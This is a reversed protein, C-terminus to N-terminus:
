GHRRRARILDSCFGALYDRAEALPESPGTSGFDDGSEAALRELAESWDAALEEDALLREPKQTPHRGFRYEVSSPRTIPWTANAIGLLAKAKTVDRRALKPDRARYWLLLEHDDTWGSQPHLRPPPSTKQWCIDQYLRYSPMSSLAREVAFIVHRTGSAWVEGTPSLVRELEEAVPILFEEFYHEPSRWIADWEGPSVSVRAGGKNTTGASGLVYPGDFFVTEVCGDPLSRLLTLADVRALAVGPAAFVVEGAPEIARCYPREFM